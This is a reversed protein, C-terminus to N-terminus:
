TAAATSTGSVMASTRTSDLPWTRPSWSRWRRM